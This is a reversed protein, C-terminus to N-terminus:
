MAPHGGVYAFAAWHYPHTPPIDVVGSTLGGRDVDVSPPPAGRLLAQIAEQRGADDLGRYWQQSLQLSRAPDIGGALQEAFRAMLVATSLDRVPWLSVVASAAGAGLLGRTMSLVEDGGTMAGRGSNCASLVVLECPLRMGVLDALTLTQRNALLVASSLPAAVEVHVHTALHAVRASVLGERVASATAAAGVLLGPSPGAPAASALLSAVAQAEHRAAPLPEQAVEDGSLTTLVMQEPDGVVLVGRADLVGDADRGGGARDAVTLDSLPPLYQLTAASPLVSLTAHDQLLADGWPLASLPATHGIGTPVLYLRDAAAVVEAVPALLVEAAARGPATWADGTACGDAFARLSRTLAVGVDPLQEAVVIGDPTVAFVLLADDVVLYSILASNAALRDAVAAVTVGTGPTVVDAAGPSVTRLADTASALERAAEEESARLKALRDPDVDPGTRASAALQQWLSLRASAAAWRRMAELAADGGTPQGVAGHVVALLDALARARGQEVLEFARDPATRSLPPPGLLNAAARGFVRASDDNLSVRQEDRAVRKSRTTLLEIATTHVSDARERDGALTLARGQDSLLGWPRLENAVWDPEKRELEAFSELAAEANGLRSYFSAAERLRLRTGDLAARQDPTLEDGYAELLAADRAAADAQYTRFAEIAEPERGLRRLAVARLLHADRSAALEAAAAAHEHAGPDDGADRALDSEALLVLVEADDAAVELAQRLGVPDADPDTPSAAHLQRLRAHSRRLVEPQHLRVAIGHLALALGAGRPWADGARVPDALRDLHGALAAEYRASAGPLDEVAASVAAEDALCQSVQTPADLAAFLRGALRHAEAARDPDGHRVLWQRGTRVLSLGLGYAYAFSGPGAGWAGITEPLDSGATPRGAAISGALVELEATRLLWLDGARAAARGAREAAALASAADGALRALLSRRIDVAASGRDAGLREYLAAAEAYAAEVAAVDVVGLDGERQEQRWSLASVWSGSDQLVGGGVYPHSLPSLALDGALLALAARSVDDDREDADQQAQALVSAAENSRTGRMLTEARLRDSAAVTAGDGAAEAASRLRATAQLLQDVVDTRHELPFDYTWARAFRLLPDIETVYLHELLVRAAAPNEADRSSAGVAPDTPDADGGGGFSGRVHSEDDHDVVANATAARPAWRAAFEVGFAAGGGPLVYEGRDHAYRRWVERRGPAAPDSDISAESTGADGVETADGLRALAEAPRGSLVDVVAHALADDPLGDLSAWAAVLDTSLDDGLVAGGIAAEVAAPLEDETRAEGM